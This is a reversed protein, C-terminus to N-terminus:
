MKNRDFCVQIENGNGKLASTTNFNCKALNEKRLHEEFRPLDIKALTVPFINFTISINANMRM